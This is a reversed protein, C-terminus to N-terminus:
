KGREQRKRVFRGAYGSRHRCLSRDKTGRTVRGKGLFGFGVLGFSLLLSGYLRTPNRPPLPTTGTAAKSSITLRSTAMGSGPTISAPSFSCSMTSPMGSCSLTISNNFSGSQPKATVTLSGATGASITLSAPSASFSLMPNPAPAPTPPPAPSPPPRPRQALRRTVPLGVSRTRWRPNASRRCLCRTVEM